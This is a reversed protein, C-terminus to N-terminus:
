PNVGGRRPGQLNQSYRARTGTQGVGFEFM